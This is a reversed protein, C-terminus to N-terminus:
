VAIRIGEFASNHWEYYYRVSEIIVFVVDDQLVNEVIIPDESEDDPTFTIQFTNSWDEHQIKIKGHYMFGMCHFETGKEIASIGEKLNIGLTLVKVSRQLINSWIFEKWKSDEKEMTKVM